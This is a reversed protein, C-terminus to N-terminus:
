SIKNYEAEICEEFTKYYRETSLADKYNGTDKKPYYFTIGVGARCYHINYIIKNKEIEHLKDLVNM